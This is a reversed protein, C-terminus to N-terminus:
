FIYKCGQARTQFNNIVGHTILCIIRCLLTWSSNMLVWPILQGIYSVSATSSIDILKNMLLPMIFEHVSARYIDSVRLKITTHEYWTILSTISIIIIFLSLYTLKEANQNGIIDLGWLESKSKLWQLLLSNQCM